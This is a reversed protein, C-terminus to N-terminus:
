VGGFDALSCGCHGAYGLGEPNENRFSPPPDCIFM